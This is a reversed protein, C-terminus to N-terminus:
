DNGLLSEIKSFGPIFIATRLNQGTNAALNQVKNKHGRPQDPDPGFINLPALGSEVNEVILLRCRSCRLKEKIFKDRQSCGM